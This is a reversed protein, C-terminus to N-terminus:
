NLKELEEVQEIDDSFEIIEWVQRIANEEEVYHSTVYQTESDYVPPETEIVKKYGEYELREDSPNSIIIRLVKPATQIQGDTKLKAYM